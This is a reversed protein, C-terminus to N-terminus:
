FPGSPKPKFIKGVPNPNLTPWFPGNYVVIMFNECCSSYLVLNRNLDELHFDINSRSPNYFCCLLWKTKRLNIEVYFSEMPKNELSLLKFPIDDRVFLMLGGGHIDGDLRIPPGYGDILFQGVPFSNDLKTESVM